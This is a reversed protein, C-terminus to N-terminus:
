KREGGMTGLLRKFEDTSHFDLYVSAFRVYAVPDKDRLFRMVEQGIHRTTVEKRSKEALGKELQRLFSEIEDDSLRRKKTATLISHRIKERDFAMRSEDKKVVLPLRLEAREFTTFRSGCKGGCVRRRRIEEQGNVVRSDIVKTDPSKCFPCRM